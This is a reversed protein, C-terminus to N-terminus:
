IGYYDEFYVGSLRGMASEIDEFNSYEGGLYAGQLDILDLLGNKNIEIDFECGYVMELMFKIDQNEIALDLNYNLIERDIVTELFDKLTEFGNMEEILESLNAYLFEIVLKDFDLESDLYGKINNEKAYKELIKEM